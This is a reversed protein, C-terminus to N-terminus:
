YTAKTIFMILGTATTKLLFSAFISSAIRMKLSKTLHPTYKLIFDQIILLIKGNQKNTQKQPRRREFSNPRGSPIKGVDPAPM